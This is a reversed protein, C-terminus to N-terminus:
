REDCTNSLNNKGLKWLLKRCACVNFGSNTQSFSFFLTCTLRWLRILWDFDVQTLIEELTCAPATCTNTSFLCSIGSLVLLFLSTQQSGSHSQLQHPESLFRVARWRKRLRQQTHSPWTNSCPESQAGTLEQLRECRRGALLVQGPVPLLSPVPPKQRLSFKGWTVADTEATVKRRKM